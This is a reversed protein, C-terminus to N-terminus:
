PRGAAPAAPTIARAKARAPRTALAGTKRRVSSFAREPPPQTPHKEDNTTWNPTNNPDCRAACWRASSSSRGATRTQITPKAQEQALPFARVLGRLRRRLPPRSRHSPSPGWAESHLYRSMPGAATRPPLGTGSLGGDEESVLFGMLHHGPQDNRTTRRGPRTSLPRTRDGEGVLSAADSVGRVSGERWSFAQVVLGRLVLPNTMASLHDATTM